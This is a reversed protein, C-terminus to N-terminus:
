GIAQKLDDILDNEDEIGVSLRILSDVIGNKEREKKPMSAHTMSAPHGALSEVGGLSEALTFVELKKIIEIAENYDAGKPIFSLMGGFGKMQSKAINYNPHTDFGPWFVKEVKPHNALYNAIAKGNECHRQMRVHLTKIGRLVLFSDMPGCIAGSAKQIFYLKDALDKNNVILAGMVVDSHGGLYKTASHMVIDAGLDLPTQLYPTAFTNDVALPINHKKAIKGAAAIDIINMMPNTPTEVWILKTNSNIYNEITSTNSMDVFHFIIGFKEYVQKFLRYSGGYLDSTSIVEDGPSLLKIVADIAAIGSGFVLGYNGNEISALSKELATRTPNASRSYEYGNHVGPATQAYTSTQYIPPMVAGYAKDPEQGGHITKSNFKLNNKGM